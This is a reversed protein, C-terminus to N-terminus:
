DVEPPTLPGGSGFANFEFTMVPISAAVDLAAREAIRESCPSASISSCSRLTPMDWCSRALDSLSNPGSLADTFRKFACIAESFKDTDKTSITREVRDLELDALLASLQDHTLM